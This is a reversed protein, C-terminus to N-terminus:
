KNNEISQLAIPLEKETIGGDLTKSKEKSLKPFLIANLYTELNNSSFSSTEKYM